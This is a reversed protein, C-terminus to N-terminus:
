DTSICDKRWNNGELLLHADLEKLFATHSQPSLHLLASRAALHIIDKIVGDHSMPLYSDDILCIKCRLGVLLDFSMCRLM